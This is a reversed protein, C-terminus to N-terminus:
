STSRKPRTQIKWGFKRAMARVYSKQYKVDEAPHTRERKIPKDTSSTEVIRVSIEDVVSLDQRVWTVHESVPSILGGVTLFLDGEGKRPVWHVIATLVGDDGIGALCLKKRNLSVEFARM